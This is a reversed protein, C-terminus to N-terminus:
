DASCCVPIIDVAGSLRESQVYIMHSFRFTSIIKGCITVHNNKAARENVVDNEKVSETYGM